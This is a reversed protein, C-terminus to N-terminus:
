RVIAFHKEPDVTLQSWNNKNLDNVTTQGIFVGLHLHHGTSKGSNGTRGLIAGSDHLGKAIGKEELHYCHMRYLEGEWLYQFVIYYGLIASYSSKIVEGETPAYIPTNKPVPYDSGVHRGTRPYWASNKVGYVQSPKVYNERLPHPLSPQVIEQRVKLTLDLVKQWLDRLLKLRMRKPQYKSWDLQKLLGSIDPFTGHWQHTIDPTDVHDYYAHCLEHGGTQIFQNLGKRLTHEDAFFYYGEIDSTNNPNSGRLTSKVKWAKKQALTGHLAIIDYGQNFYPTIFEKIWDHTIRGKEVQPTFGHYIIETDIFQNYWDLKESLSGWSLTDKDATVILLKM